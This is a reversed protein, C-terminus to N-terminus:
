NWYDVKHPLDIDKAHFVPDKGAKRQSDYDRLARIVYKGLILIVPMNIITMAGMTVDAINWLLDASLGAGAFIVLAAIIHSAAQTKKGPVKGLIYILAKDVYFLNGL